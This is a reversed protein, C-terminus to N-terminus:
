RLNNRELITEILTVRLRLEEIESRNTFDIM